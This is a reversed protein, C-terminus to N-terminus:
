RAECQGRLWAVFDSQATMGIQKALDVKTFDISNGAAIIHATLLTVFPEDFENGINHLIDTAIADLRALNDDIRAVAAQAEQNSIDEQNLALCENDVASHWDQDQQNKYDKLLNNLHELDDRPLNLQQAEHDLATVINRSFARDLNRAYSRLRVHFPANGIGYKILAADPIISAPENEVPRAIQRSSSSPGARLFSDQASTELATSLLIGTLIINHFQM